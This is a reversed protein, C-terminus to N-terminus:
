ETIGPNTGKDNASSLIKKVNINLPQRPDNSDMYEIPEKHFQRCMEYGKKKIYTFKKSRHNILKQVSAPKLKWARALAIMEAESLQIYIEYWEQNMLRKEPFLCGHLSYTVFQAM